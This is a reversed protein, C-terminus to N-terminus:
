AERAKTKAEAARVADDLQRKVAQYEVALADLRPPAEEVSGADAAKEIEDCLAAMRRAGVIGCSGRLAHAAFGLEEHDRSGAAERMRATHRAVSSVFDAVLDDTFGPVDMGLALLVSVVSTDLSPPEGSDSV